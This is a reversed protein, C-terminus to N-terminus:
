LIKILTDLYLAIDEVEEKKFFFLYDAFIYFLKKNYEIYKFLTELITYYTKKKKLSSASSSILTFTYFLM